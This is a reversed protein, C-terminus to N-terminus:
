KRINYTIENGDIIIILKLPAKSNVVANPLTVGFAYHGSYMPGIEFWDDKAIVWTTNQMGRNLYGTSENVINNWNYQHCWGGYEYVEDFVAKVECANLFNKNTPATNLIDVKLIAFEAEAGSSYMNEKDYFLDHEGADYYGLMDVFEFSTLTVKAYGEIEAEANLKLDDLSVPETETEPGGIVQVGMGEALAASASLLMSLVLLLSLIKKM